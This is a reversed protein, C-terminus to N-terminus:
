NMVHQPATMTRLALARLKCTECDDCGHYIAEQEFAAVHILSAEKLQCLTPMPEDCTAKPFSKGSPPNVAKFKTVLYHRFMM